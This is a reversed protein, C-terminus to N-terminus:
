PNKMPASSRPRYTAVRRSSSELRVAFSADADFEEAPEIPQQPEYRCVSQAIRRFDADTHTHGREIRPEMARLAQYIPEEDMGRRRMSGALSTLTVDIEGIRIVEGVPPASGNMSSPRLLDILWRPAAIPKRDDEVEYEGERVISGPWVVYNGHKRVDVAPLDTTGALDDASIGEPLRYFLQKGGRGTKHTRTALWADGHQECLAALSAKGGSKYLDLDIVLEDPLVPAGVNALPYKVGWWEEVREEDKTADLFGNGGVSKPIRPRKGRETLPFVPRTEALARAVELMRRDRETM